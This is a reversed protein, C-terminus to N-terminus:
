PAKKRAPSSGCCGKLYQLAAVLDGWLRRKELSFLGLERLREGCSLHEVGRVMKMAEELIEGVPGYREQAPSGLAPCLVAPPTEGSHLLPASDGGEVQQNRKQHLGPYAAASISIYTIYIVCVCIM